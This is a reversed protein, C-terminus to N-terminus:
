TDTAGDFSKPKVLWRTDVAGENRAGLVRAEVDTARQEAQAAATRAQLVESQITVALQELAQVREEASM